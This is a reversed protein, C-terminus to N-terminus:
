GEVAGRAAETCLAPVIIAAPHGPMASYVDDFELAAGFSGNLLAALESSTKQATGLVIADGQASAAALYHMLPPAVESAAGCLIAGFADVIAKGAKGLVDEPIQALETDRVFAALGATVKPAEKM